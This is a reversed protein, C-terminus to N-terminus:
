SAVKRGLLRRAADVLVTGDTETANGRMFRNAAVVIRRRDDASLPPEAFRTAHKIEAALAHHLKTEEQPTGEEDAIKRLVLGRNVVDWAMKDAKKLAARAADAWTEHGRTTFLTEGTPLGRADIEDLRADRTGSRFPVRSTRQHVRLDVRKM